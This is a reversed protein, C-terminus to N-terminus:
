SRASSRRRRRERAPRSCRRRASPAVVTAGDGDLVVLDGPRIAAGGVVVPVDLEGRDGEDRRALRDLAGV